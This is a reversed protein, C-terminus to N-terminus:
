RFDADYTSQPTAPLGSYAPAPQTKKVCLESLRRTIAPDAPTRGIFRKVFGVLAAGHLLRSTGPVRLLWFSIPQRTSSPWIVLAPASVTADLGRLHTILAQQIYGQDKATHDVREGGRRNKGFLTWYFGPKWVKTDLVLVRKGSVVVHDINAKFGPIPVRLDHLVAAKLGFGNLIQQTREEGGAGIRAVADNAAFSSDNALGTGATGYVGNM